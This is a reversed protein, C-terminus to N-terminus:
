QLTGNSASGTTPTRETEEKNKRVLEKGKLMGLFNVRGAISPKGNKESFRRM